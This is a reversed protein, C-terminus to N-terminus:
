SPRCPGKWAGTPWCAAASPCSARTCGLRRTWSRLRCISRRSGGDASWDLSKFLASHATSAEKFGEGAMDQAVANTPALGVVRKGDREHADAIAGLTYSKGTGARGVIVKLKGVGTAYAFAEQQDPRMSRSAGAAQASRGSVAGSRAEALKEADSLASREEERVQRTTFRGAAAGSKRDHLPVLDASKLVAVRVTAIEGAAETGEQGLQKILHRDLDRETFTANNRTLAALVQAPDRAAEQNAERITEAREVIEAGTRRMRVPGIHEEAHTAAADVRVDLGHERFYQDQHEGWLAGWAAGDAVRARGGASRVEPDLDRAKKASLEDGEIRRTTILLHAHWNARESESDAGHPVHVDLQVALGKSVFHQEAFTRVMEIRDETTVGANAPLAVVMERAVQADKRKEAAEVANWLVGAEAFREAAGQPLLVEHHEPADRNKFYFLEGTREARIADRAAYASSRVASGGSSRSVYEVRAFPIAM